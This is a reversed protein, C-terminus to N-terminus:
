HPEASIFVICRSGRKDAVYLIFVLSLISSILFVFHSIRYVIVYACLTWFCLIPWFWIVNILLLLESAHLCLNLLSCFISVFSKLFLSLTHLRLNAKNKSCKWWINWWSTQKKLRNSWKKKFDENSRIL